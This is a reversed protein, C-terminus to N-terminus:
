CSTTIAGPRGSRTPSPSAATTPAPSARIVKRNPPSPSLSIRCFASRSARRATGPTTSTKIGYQNVLTWAVVFNGDQDMAVDPDYEPQGSNAVDPTSSFPTGAPKFTRGEVNRDGNALTRTWVVVSYGYKSISVAPQTDDNASGDIAFDPGIASGGADYLRARIDHNTPSVGDTWVVVSSGDPASANDSENQAGLTNTNVAFESGLSLMARAELAELSFRRARNRRPNTAPGTPRRIELFM